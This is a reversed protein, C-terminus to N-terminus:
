TADVWIEIFLISVTFHGTLHGTSIEPPSVSIARQDLAAHHPLNFIQDKRTTPPVIDPLQVAPTRAVSSVM